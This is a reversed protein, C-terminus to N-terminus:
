TINCNSILAAIINSFEVQKLNAKEYENMWDGSILLNPIELSNGIAMSRTWKPAVIPM